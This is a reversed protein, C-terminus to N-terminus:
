PASRLIRVVEAIAKPHAFGGHGTPVLLESEAFTVHSSSYAVVGDSSNLTDRQERDGIISHSPATPTFRDLVRLFRSNPSLGHISTPLRGRGGPILFDGFEELEAIVSRPLRILRVGLAGLTGLAIGSGRHPTNIFIVRAVDRRPEFVIARRASSQAPLEAIKPVVQEADNLSIRSVQVRAVIGGMSHGILILPKKLRHRLAAETLAEGLQLGSLPVPQGTPYYFFWFQYRERIERNALLRKVIPKWMRPTSMLGHILVVPTKASDFPKLFILQSRDGFRDSRLMYRLGEGFRPGLSRATELPAELDMATPLEEQFADIVQLRQPDAFLLNLRGDSNPVVLATAAIAYGSPPANPDVTKGPTFKAIVPLGIGERHLGAVRVRSRRVPIIKSFDHPNFFKRSDREPPRVVGGAMVPLLDAVARRYSAYALSRQSSNVGRSRLAAISQWIMREAEARKADQVSARPQFATQCGNLALIALLACRAGYRRAVSILSSDFRLFAM